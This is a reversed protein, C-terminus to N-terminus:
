PFQQLQLLGAIAAASSLRDQLAAIYDLNAEIVSRQSQLIRLLDFQGGELGKQVLEYTRQADPLIGTQYTDVTVQASRYRGLAEALQRLLDNRVASLQAVSQRVNAGAARINGQNRDWIPINFYTGILAQSHPQNVSWQYGSNLILNPTPEVEARRLLFENRTIDARASEILSSRTLLQERVRSDDYNPLKISLDGVARDIKLDPLGILAALQQGAATAAYAASRLSVEIRRLEIQLLLVDTETAQEAQRLKITIDQSQQAIKQLDQLITVRQQTALFLYFQQRVSTVLDFQQRIFDLNAQRVGQEAAAVNLPIKGARVIEQQIGFSYLSQGGGFQNPNGSNQQPNPYLGAQVALGQAQEVRARSQRLLPSNNLALNTAQELTLGRQLVVTTPPLLEPDRATALGALALALCLGM